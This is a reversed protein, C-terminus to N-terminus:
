KREVKAIESRAAEGVAIRMLTEHMKTLCIVAANPEKIVFEYLAHGDMFSHHEEVRHLVAELDPLKVHEAEWAERDKTYKEQQEPTRFHTECEQTGDTHHRPILDHAKEDPTDPTVDFGFQPHDFCTWRAGPSQHGNNPCQHKGCGCEKRDTGGDHM